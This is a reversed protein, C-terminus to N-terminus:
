PWQKYSKRDIDYTHQHVTGPKVRPLALQPDALFDRYYGIAFPHYKDKLEVSGLISAFVPSWRNFNELKSACSAVYRRDGYLSAIMMGYMATGNDNYVYRAATADGKAGLSAPAYFATLQANDHQAIENRFFEENLFKVVAEDVLRKPYMKARGDEAVQMRCVPKDETIPGAVRLLTLPSDPTRLRWKEPISMTFDCHPDQWVFTDAAAPTSVAILLGFIATTLIKQM